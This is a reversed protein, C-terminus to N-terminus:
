AAQQRHFGRLRELNEPSFGDVRGGALKVWVLVCSGPIAQMTMTDIVEGTHGTFLGQKIRVSHGNKFSSSDDSMTSDETPLSLLLSRAKENHSAPSSVIFWNIFSVLRFYM